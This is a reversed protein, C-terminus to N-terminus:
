TTLHTSIFALAVAAIAKLTYTCWMGIGRKIEKLLHWAGEPNRRGDGMQQAMMMMHMQQKQNQQQQQIIAQRLATNQESLSAYAETQHQQFFRCLVRLKVARTAVYSVTITLRHKNHKYLNLDATRLSAKPSKAREWLQPPRWNTIPLTPAAENAKTPISSRHKTLLALIYM